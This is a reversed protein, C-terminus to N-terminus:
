NEAVAKKQTSNMASKRNIDERIRRIDKLNKKLYLEMAQPSSTECFVVFGPFTDNFNMKPTKNPRKTTIVMVPLDSWDKFNLKPLYSDMRALIKAYNSPHVTNQFFVLKRNLQIRPKTLIKPWIPRGKRDYKPKNSKLRNEFFEQEYKEYPNDGESFTINNGDTDSPQKRLQLLLDTSLKNTKQITADSLIGKQAAEKFRAARLDTVTRLKVSNGMIEMASGVSSIAHAEIYRDIETKHRPTVQVELQNCIDYMLMMVKSRIYNPNNSDIKIEPIVLRIKKYRKPVYEYVGTTSKPDDTPDSTPNSEAASEGQTAETITTSDNQNNSVEEQQQEQGQSTEDNKEESKTPQLLYVDTEIPKYHPTDATPIKGSFIPYMRTVIQTFADNNAAKAMPSASYFDPHIRRLMDRYVPKIHQYLKLLQKAKKVM